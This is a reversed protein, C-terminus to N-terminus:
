HGTAHGIQGLPQYRRPDFHIRSAVGERECRTCYARAMRDEYDHESNNVDAIWRHQMEQEDLRTINEVQRKMMEAIAGALEESKSASFQEHSKVWTAIGELQTMNRVLAFAALLMPIGIGALAGIVTGPKPKSQEERQELKRSVREVAASVADFGRDVKINLEKFRQEFETREIYDLEREITTTM